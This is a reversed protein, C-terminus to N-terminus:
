AAVLDKKQEAESTIRRNLEDWNSVVYDRDNNQNSVLVIKQKPDNAKIQECLQAAAEPNETGNVVILEFAGPKCRTCVDQMRLVPYVKFGAQKLLDNREKRRYRDKDEDVMLAKRTITNNASNVQM